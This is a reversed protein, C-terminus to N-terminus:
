SFSASIIYGVQALAASRDTDSARSGTFYTTVLVPPRNPPWCIAIDNSTGNDGSGTKDGIRWSSSLGARLRAAGTTSAVLWAALQNRSASSLADKEILLKHMEQLMASPTTTDRPDGPTATNLSPENRDLRTVSDGLSRAYQTVAAPGGVASLLLNAATNDSYEIAAACLASVTMGGEAVHAKTIPAYDLLDSKTYHVFRDLTERHADVRSLIESVLLFKFTSCMPFREDARHELHKGSNTDLAAVGLRGGLRAEIRAVQASAGRVPGVFAFAGREFHSCPAGSFVSLATSLRLVPIFAASSLFSRRTFRSIV